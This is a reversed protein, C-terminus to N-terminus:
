VNTVCTPLEYIVFLFLFGLFFSFRTDFPRDRKKIIIVVQREVFAIHAYSNYIKQEAVVVVVVRHLQKFALILISVYYYFPLNFSNYCNPFNKWQKNKRWKTEQFSGSSDNCAFWWIVNSSITKTTTERFINSWTRINFPFLLLLLLLIFISGRATDM